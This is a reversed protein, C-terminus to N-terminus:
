WVTKSETKQRNEVDEAIALVARIMDAWFISVFFYADAAFFDSVNSQEVIYRLRVFDNISM